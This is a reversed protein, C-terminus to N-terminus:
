GKVAYFYQGFDAETCLKGIKQYERKTARILHEMTVRQSDEAALFAAALAINKINGGTVKFQRAVFALDVDESLPAERPFIRQWIQYRDQEEPFPFEVAFHMRRAFAEDLNKRLNTALIVIGEYEEMKQLLYAIEINAYRDHSDRVESRKGFLADAEDFLLIANSDRGEKFIRDLNKETEGIYKSVIASLDIKYLDLGLEGAIIESAMTKGTGSPGAFLVNLGKGLSLKREFNWDGYVVHRYKVYSCIERLHAMQDRPLVIDAWTYRPQIKCALAALRQNSHARCATYLDEITIAGDGGDRVLALNRATAVAHRIQGGSFRFKDALISLDGDSLSVGNLHAQWLQKRLSYSPLSFEIRAFPKDGWCGTAEWLTEGSLFIPGLCGALRQIIGDLFPKDGAMLMDFREYYLAAGQLRGERLALDTALEFPIEGSLLRPVDIVLLPLGSEKCLAEAATRKGVGFPGQFCCVLDSEAGNSLRRLKVILEDPLIVDQWEIRPNVLQAFPLLRADIQESGLLYDIIREDVKLFKALFTTARGPPDDDLTLLHHKVLPAQPSFSKRAALRQEFSSCLLHLVLDISPRKKTVDDQVYAYLREHKLNIEPLLCILLADLDFETLCFLESLHHLRLMMGKSLSEAKRCAIERELCQLADMVSKVTSNSLNPASDNGSLPFISALIADVEQESVYLGRFEDEGCGNHELRTQLMRLRLKTDIRKLEALLHDLSSQFAGIEALITM